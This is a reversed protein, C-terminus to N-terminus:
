ELIDVMRKYALLAHQTVLYQKILARREDGDFTELEGTLIKKLTARLQDFDFSQRSILSPLRYFGYDCFENVVPWCGM